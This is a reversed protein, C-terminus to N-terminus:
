FGLSSSCPKHWWRDAFPELLLARRVSLIADALTPEGILDHWRDVPIQSTILTAGRGYRDEVIELMDHRQEPGLPELGWDDFILGQMAHINKTAVRHHIGVYKEIANASWDTTANNRRTGRALPLYSAAIDVGLDCARAWSARDVAFIDKAPSQVEAGTGSFRRFAAGVQVPSTWDPGDSM